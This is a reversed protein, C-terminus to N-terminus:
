NAAFRLAPHSHAAPKAVVPNGCVSARRFMTFIRVHERFSSAHQIPQCSIEIPLNEVATRVKSSVSSNREERQIEPTTSGIGARRENARSERM